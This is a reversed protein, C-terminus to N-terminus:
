CPAAMACCRRPQVSLDQDSYAHLLHWHYFTSAKVSSDSFVMSVLFANEQQAVDFSMIRLDAHESEPTYTFECVIGISIAFPLQRIRWIYFEECGGSSFLYEGNESWQLHQIGTTHRRLTTRCLLEGESYEFLKIDTDEAGTATLHHPGQSVAVDKIERGHGGSQIISHNMGRQSCMHMSTARTWILTGGGELKPQPQFAWSRHAGGTDISMVEEDITTDYLVWKKGSFGYVLVHGRQLSLGEVNPGIPLTLSHVMKVVSTLLDIHQVAICGNRGVSTLYGSSPNAVSPEWEMATVTEADHVREIVKSLTATNLEKPASSISYIAVSGKRFGLFLLTNELTSALTMSTITPGTSPESVPVTITRVVSPECDAPADVYLLMAEKQGVLAALLLTVKQGDPLLAQRAFMDGIKGHLSGLKTLKKSNQSFMYITGATGAIFAQGSGIDGTCISYGSLDELQDIFEVEALVNSHESNSQSKLLGLLVKGSNTTLLFTGCDLFCYSRLSEAKKSRKSTHQVVDASSYSNFSQTRSLLDLMTYDYIRCGQMQESTRTLPHSTIKADAAGCVVRQQQISGGYTTNSWINKGNHHAACDQQILKYPLGEDDGTNLSLKWTRSTADEGASLLFLEGDCPASELFQVKWVRSTHGWGVAICQSRSSSELDLDANGFGTHHTRESEGDQEPTLESDTQTVVDSVDWIRITRDDSCSAIIRKLTQCCGSPLEKSIHVGFVSGEHGLFIRHIRTTTGGGSDRNWSWYMIEGFATGAAVLVCDASEWFVHASYLISRSSSTLEEVSLTFSSNHQTLQPLADSQLCRV